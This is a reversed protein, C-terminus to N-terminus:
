NNKFHAQIKPDLELERVLVEIVEGEDLNYSLQDELPDKSEEKAFHAIQNDFNNFVM